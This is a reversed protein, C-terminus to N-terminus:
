WLWIKAKRLCSLRTVTCGELSGACCTGIRTHIGVEAPNISRGFRVRRRSVAEVGKWLRTRRKGGGYACARGHRHARDSRGERPRGDGRLQPGGVPEGGGSGGALRLGFPHRRLHDTVGEAAGHVPARWTKGKDREGQAALM